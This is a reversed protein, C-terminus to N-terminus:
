IFKEKNHSYDKQDIIRLDALDWCGELKIEKKYYHKKNITILRSNRTTRNSVGIVHFNATSAYTPM